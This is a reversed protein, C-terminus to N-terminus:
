IVASVTLEVNSRCCFKSKFPLSMIPVPLILIAPVILAVPLTFMPSSTLVSVTSKAAFIVLENVGFASAVYSKPVVKSFHFLM